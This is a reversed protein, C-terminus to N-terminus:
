RRTGSRWLGAAVACAVIGVSMLAIAVHLFMFLPFALLILAFWGWQGDNLPEKGM